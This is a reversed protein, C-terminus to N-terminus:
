GKDLGLAERLRHPSMLGATPQGARQTQLLIVEIDDVMSRLEARVAPDSSAAAQRPSLDGIIGPDDLWRIEADRGLQEAADTEDAVTSADMFYSDVILTRAERDGPNQSLPEVHRDQEVADEAVERM